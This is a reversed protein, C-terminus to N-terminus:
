EDGSLYEPTPHALPTLVSATTTSLEERSLSMLIQVNNSSVRLYAKKIRILFIYSLKKEVQIHNTNPEHFAMYRHNVTMEHTSYEQRNAKEFLM